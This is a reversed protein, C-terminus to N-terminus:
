QTCLEVPCKEVQSPGPVSPFGGGCEASLKASTCSREMPAAFDTDTLDVSMNASGPGNLCCDTAPDGFFGCSFATIITTLQQPADPTADNVVNLDIEGVKSFHGDVPEERFKFDALAM